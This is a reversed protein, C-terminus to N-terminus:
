ALGFKQRLEEMVSYATCDLQIPTIAVYGNNMAGRDTSEDEEDYGVFDGTLWFYSRGRPDIREDWENVWDGTGMRCIKM